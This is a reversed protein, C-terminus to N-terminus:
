VGVLQAVPLPIFDGVFQGGGREWGHEKCNSVDVIYDGHKKTVLMKSTGQPQDTIPYNGNLWLSGEDDAYMGWPLTRVSEGEVMDKLGDSELSEPLKAQM